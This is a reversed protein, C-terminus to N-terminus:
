QKKRQVTFNEQWAELIDELSGRRTKSYVDRWLEKQSEKVAHPVEDVGTNKRFREDQLIPDTSDLMSVLEFVLPETINSAYQYNIAAGLKIIVKVRTKASLEDMRFVDILEKM